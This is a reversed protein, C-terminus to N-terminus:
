LLWGYIHHDEARAELAGDQNAAAGVCPYRYMPAQGKSYALKTGFYYDRELSEHTNLCFNKKQV